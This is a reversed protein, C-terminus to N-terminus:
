MWYSKHHFRQHDMWAIWHRFGLREWWRYWSLHFCSDLRPFGYPFLKIWLFLFGRPDDSRQLSMTMAQIYFDIALKVKWFLPSLIWTIFQYYSNYYERIGCSGSMKSSWYIGGECRDSKLKSQITPHNCWIPTHSQFSLSKLQVVPSLRKGWNEVRNYTGVVFRSRFIPLSVMIEALCRM